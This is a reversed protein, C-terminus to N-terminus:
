VFFSGRKGPALDGPHDLFFLCYKTHPWRVPHALLIEPPEHQPHQTPGPTLVTSNARVGHLPPVETERGWLTPPETAFHRSIPRNPNVTQQTSPSAVGHDVPESGRDGTERLAEGM